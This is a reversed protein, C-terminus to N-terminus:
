HIGYRKVAAGLVSHILESYSLGAARAAKPFCSNQEPRPLIGPLPNLEIVHPRGEADLRLDVRCWDRCRMVTYAAMAVREIEARLAPTLRAPCEFIELPHSSEDWIWKAEYSYIPNVGKPLSEFKIEVIPL